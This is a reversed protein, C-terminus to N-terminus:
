GTKFTRPQHLTRGKVLPQPIGALSLSFSADLDGVKRSLEMRLRSEDGNTWVRSWRIAGISEREEKEKKKFAIKVCLFM